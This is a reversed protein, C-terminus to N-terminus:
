KRGKLSAEKIPVGLLLGLQTIESSQAIWISRGIELLIKKIVELKERENPDDVLLLGVNIKATEQAFANMAYDILEPYKRAIEQSMTHKYLTELDVGKRPM